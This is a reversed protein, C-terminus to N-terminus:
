AVDIRKRGEWLGHLNCYAIAYIVGPKELKMKLTIEPEVIGPAFRVRSLLIPNFKRGEEYLYVTIERISHEPTNPHPGVSIKVMFTEGKSVKEPAEIKPTHSEVKTIAEGTATEPSYILEGYKKM